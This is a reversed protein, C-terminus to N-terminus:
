NLFRWSLSIICSNCLGSALYGFDIIAHINLNCNGRETRGKYLMSSFKQMVRIHCHPAIGNCTALPTELISIEGAVKTTLGFNALVTERYLWRLILSCTLKGLSKQTMKMAIKNVRLTRTMFWRFYINKANRKTWYIQVTPTQRSHSNRSRNGGVFIKTRFLGSSSTYHCTSLTGSLQCNGRSIQIVLISGSEIALGVENVNVSVKYGKSSYRCVSAFSFWCLKKRSGLVHSRETTVFGVIIRNGNGLIYNEITKIVYLWFILTIHLTPRLILEMRWILFFFM